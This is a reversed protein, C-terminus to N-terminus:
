AAPIFHVQNRGNRKAQYLAKDAAEILDQVYLHPPFSAVGASFTASFNGQEQIFIVKAFAQRLEDIVHKANEPPTDPLIIAFEEGGYRASIDGKRLRRELIRALGKIVRDGVPHGYQDNIKKFHDIDIMAFSLKSKNRRSRALERELALKLSIHNLAGTLGDHDTLARLDRFRKARATVTSVLHQDNIPKELFDDGGARLANLQLDLENETSIYVIPLNTYNGHQRVVQAAEIGSSNPMYLDMLVLDPLFTPLVDLLHAPEDLIETVMGATQLVEAYHEALLTTDDVILIRYQDPKRRGTILEMQDALLDFDIPKALYAQGGARLANLRYDWTNYRSMFLTPIDQQLRARINAVVKTGTSEGEGLHIDILLADPIQQSIAKDLEDAAGFAEVRYGFHNLQSVSEGAMHEDDELVYILPQNGTDAQRPPAPLVAKTPTDPGNAATEILQGLTAEITDTLDPNNGDQGYHKLLLELEKAQEGMRYFNFTGASGALSHTNRHLDSLTAPDARQQKVLDWENKIAAIRGPLAAMFKEQLSVFKAAKDTM